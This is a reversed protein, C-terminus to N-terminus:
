SPPITLTAQVIASTSRRGGVVPWVYWRLEGPQLTRSKGNLTWRVPVVVAARPSEAVFIRTNDRYLEVHYGEANRTPAWALRRPVASSRMRHLSAKTPSAASRKARLQQTPPATAKGRSAAGAKARPRQPPVKTTEGQASTPVVPAEASAGTRGVEVRVDALLMTAVLVAAVGVLVRVSGKKRVLPPRDAALPEIARIPELRRLAALFDVPEPLSARAQAALAPDVLALEPSVPVAAIPEGSRLETM